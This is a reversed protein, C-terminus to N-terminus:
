NPPLEEWWTSGPATGGEGLVVTVYHTGGDRRFEFRNGPVREGDVEMSRVGMGVGEPNRVQIRYLTEQPPSPARPAPGERAGLRIEVEFGPWDRPIRPDIRIGGPINHIGLIAETALRYLWAASGTYWTWGGTGLFPPAGYVDAAVAYPERQYRYLDEETRIRTVPNMFQLLRFATDRDGMEAMAWAAWIGAHTYQGGNERVGPPYNRIYGPYPDARQFPPTLLLVLRNEEDVLHEQVAAMATRARDPRAGSSLLAWSQTLSDIRGEAGESTGIWAGDDFTARRYWSGDWAVTEAAQVISRARERLWEALETEGRAVCLPAWRRVIDFVFWALWVSEGKGGEGLSDLSDNWDGTGILPLGQPGTRLGQRLASICHDFLTGTEESARYVGFREMEGPGLPTGALFPVVEDLLDLDGTAELFTAVSFPLWLLDDSCRTRVGRESDPHWWHLVDGEPFQHRAATLIHLRALDPAPGLLALVDQLQDRFGFAGSSQYFGSRGWIRCSLAQYLLWRNVMVDLEPDPTSVQLRGVVTDWFRTVRGLENTIAGPVRLEATLSTAGERHEAAGLIFHVTETAGPPLDVHIQLAGCPDLGRGCRRALGLRALGDPSLLGGSGLFEIRDCTAGHMPSTSALFGVRGSNGQTFPNWALLIGSDADIETVLHPATRDRSTGMVWEVYQTVTLRRPHDWLNQLSLSAIRVPHDKAVFLTLDLELGEGRTLFRTAGLGHRVEVEGREPGAASTPSVLRGTEEDRVFIAESPPDLVPDNSWGTLRSEGSNDVWTFGAGSESVLTGFSPSAMVNIWPAPPLARRKGPPPLRLVYERGGESFGGLATVPELEDEEELPPSEPRRVGSASVPVFPPMVPTRVSLSGLQEALGGRDTALVIAASTELDRLVRSETQDSAVYHVGGARGMRNGRGLQSLAHTLWHRLVQAYGGPEEDLVVLDIEVGLSEWYNHVRLMELLPPTDDAQAVRLLLVPIDGSIGLSWLSEQASTEPTRPRGDMTNPSESSGEMAGAGGVAHGGAYRGKHFPSLATALLRQYQPFSVPDLGLAQLQVQRHLRAQDFAARAKTLSRFAEVSQVARGRSRDAGTLFALEAQEGPAIEVACALSFISDLSQISGLQNLSQPEHDLGPPPEAARGRGLFRGRDNWGGLFSSRPGRVVAHAMAVSQEPNATRRSFCLLESRAVCGEEVFLRAFAPHRRDEAPHALAVEGFSAVMLRRKERGTNTLTLLRIEVDASPAVTVALRSWIHSSERIVEVM